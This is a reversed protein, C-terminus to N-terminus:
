VKKLFNQSSILGKQSAVPVGTKSKLQRRGQTEFGPHIGKAQTIRLNVDPTVGASQFSTLMVALGKQDVYWYVHRCANTSTKPNFGHGETSCAAVVASFVVRGSRSPPIKFSLGAVSGSWCICVVLAPFINLSSHENIACCLLTSM